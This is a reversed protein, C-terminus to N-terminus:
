INSLQHARTKALAGAIRNLHWALTRNMKDPLKEKEIPSLELYRNEAMLNDWGEGPKYRQRMEKSVIRIVSAGFGVANRCEEREKASILPSIVVGGQIGVQKWRRRLVLMEEKFHSRVILLDIIPNDLLGLNGVAMMKIGSVTVPIPVSRMNPFLERMLHRRPNSELYRRENEYMEASKIIRDHFNDAFLSFDDINGCLEPLSKKIANTCRSKLDKLLMGLHQELRNTVKLIFHIHDPMMVIKRLKLNPQNRFFDTFAARIVAGSDHLYIYPRIIPNEGASESYSPPKCPLKFEPFLIIRKIEPAIKGTHRKLPMPFRLWDLVSCFPFNNGNRRSFTIMYSGPATYDHTPHRRTMRDRM